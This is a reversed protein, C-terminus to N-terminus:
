ALLLIIIIQLLLYSFQSCDSKRLELRMLTNFQDKNLNPINEGWRLDETLDLQSDFYNAPLLPPLQEKLRGEARNLYVTM